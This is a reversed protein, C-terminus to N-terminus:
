KGKSIFLEGDPSFITWNKMFIDTKRGDTYWISPAIVIKDDDDALYQAWWSFSSNSMIFHRCKAMLLIEEYDPHREEVFYIDTLFDSSGLIENKVTTIDDSFVFFKINSYKSKLFKMANLYYENKCVNLHNTQVLYDGRRIHVCVSNNNKIHNLLFHDNIDCIIEEKLLTKIHNFYRDSQWYGSVYINKQSCYPVNIYDIRDWLITGKKLYTRFASVPAIKSYMRMLQNSRRDYIRNYKGSADVAKIGRLNYHGLSFDRQKDFAFDSIDLVLEDKRREQLARSFAYQFLQNGLGGKLKSVIM